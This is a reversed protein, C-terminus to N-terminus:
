GAPRINQNLHFLNDPDWRAKIEALRDYAGGYNDRVRVQDDAAMFNTYGGEFGSHPHIAEYYDRVWRITLDDEAPNSWMGAVNAVFDASRHTFATADPDVEQVAGDIPYLHMTSPVNPVRSGHKVHAEIAEDTLEAVFDAKWYQRTGPPVLGDFASQLVPYPMPGVHEAVVPARARLPELVEDAEEAPGSWSVVVAFFRDGHRSEPVFPLPPAIMFALFGGLERPAEAIWDRYFRMLDGAAELEFLIPGGVVQDVPHLRLELSTVVGFNGGGGRLAWFLEPNEDASARVKRGDATVVDASVLNDCTLGHKRGLYAAVGGGLTLGAVGTTSIFGSPTALGFAHTAHDLDGLVAGGGVRATRREPDVRVNRIAGLDLVVGGDCTGYGPVGHGGGRVALELGREAAFGVTAMVDAEDLARVVVAPRREIMGNHVARAGDYGEDEPTVVPGRFLTELETPDFPSMARAGQWPDATTPPADWPPTTPEPDLQPGAAGSEYAVIPVGGSRSLYLFQVPERPRAPAIM